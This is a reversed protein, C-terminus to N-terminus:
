PFLETFHKYSTTLKGGKEWVTTVWKLTKGIHLNIFQAIKQQDTMGMQATFFLSCQLLFGKCGSIKRSFKDPHPILMSSSIIPMPQTLLAQSVATTLQTIRADM